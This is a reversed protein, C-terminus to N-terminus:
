YTLLECCKKWQLEGAAKESAKVSKGFDHWSCTPHARPVDDIISRVLLEGVDPWDMEADRSEYIINHLTKAKNWKM